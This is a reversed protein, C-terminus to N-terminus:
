GQGVFILMEILVAALIGEFLGNALTYAKNDGLSMAIDAMYSLLATARDDKPKVEKKVADIVRVIGEIAKKTVRTLRKLLTLMFVVYNTNHCWRPSEIFTQSVLKVAGDWDGKSLLLQASYLQSYTKTKDTFSNKDMGEYERIHKALQEM